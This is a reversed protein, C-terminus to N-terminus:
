SFRESEGCLVDFIFKERSVCDKFDKIYVLPQFPSMPGGGELCYKVFDKAHDSILMLKLRRFFKVGM